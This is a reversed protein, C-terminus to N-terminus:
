ENIVGAKRFANNFVCEIHLMGDSASDIDIVDANLLAQKLESTHIDLVYADAIVVIQLYAPSYEIRADTGSSCFASHLFQAKLNVDQMLLYINNISDKEITDMATAIDKFLNNDM